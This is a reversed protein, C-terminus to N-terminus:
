LLYEQLVLSNSVVPSSVCCFSLPIQVTYNTKTKEFWGAHNLKCYYDHSGQSCNTEGIGFSLSVVILMRSNTVGWTICKIDIENTLNNKAQLTQVFSHLNRALLASLLVIWVKTSTNYIDLKHHVYLAWLLTKKGERMRTERAWQVCCELGEELCCNSVTCDIAPKYSSRWSSSMMLILFLLSSLAGSSSNWRHGAHM